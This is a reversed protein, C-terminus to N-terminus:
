SPVLHSVYEHQTTEILSVRYEVAQGTLGYAVRHSEILPTGIPRAFVKAMEASCVAARLREEAKVVTTGFETQYLHYFTSSRGLLRSQTLGKFLNAPLTVQECVVKRGQLSLHNRIKFVLDGQGLSLMQAELPNARGKEFSVTEVVPFDKLGSRAEVQFFQDLFRDRTHTAVYTGRGQYRVLIQQSVLDDVAKRLTGVSVGFSKALDTESALAAGPKLEGAEVSATLARAVIKYLADGTADPKIKQFIM